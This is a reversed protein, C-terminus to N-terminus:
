DHPAEAQIVREQWQSRIRRTLTWHFMPLKMAAAKLRTVSDRANKMKLHGKVEEVQIRGSPWEVLFDPEYTCDIGIEVSFPHHVVRTIDGAMQLSWWYRARAAELKSDYEPPSSLSPAPKVGAGAVVPGANTRPADAPTARRHRERGRPYEVSGRVLKARGTAPDIALPLKGYNTQMM